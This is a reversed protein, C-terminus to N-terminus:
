FSKEGKVPSSCRWRWLGGPFRQLSHVHNVSRMIAEPQQPPLILYM